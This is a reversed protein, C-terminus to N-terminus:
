PLYKVLIKNNGITTYSVIKHKVYLKKFTSNSVLKTVAKNLKIGFRGLLNNLQSKAISKRTKNISNSKISYIKKKVYSKFVNSQKNFIYGKIVKVKNQLLNVLINVV